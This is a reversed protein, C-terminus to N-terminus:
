TSNGGHKVPFDRRNIETNVDKINEIESLMAQADEIRLTTPITQPCWTEQRGQWSVSQDGGNKLKGMISKAPRVASTIVTLTAVGIIVGLMMLFTRTKNEAM